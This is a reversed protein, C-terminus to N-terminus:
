HNGMKLLIITPAMIISCFNLLVYTGKSLKLVRNFQELIRNEWSPIFFNRLKHKGWQEWM